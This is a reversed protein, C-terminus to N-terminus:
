LAPLFIDLVDRKTTITIGAGSESGDVSSDGNDCGVCPATQLLVPAKLTADLGALLPEMWRLLYSAAPANGEILSKRFAEISLAVPPTLPPLILKVTPTTGLLGQHDVYEQSLM